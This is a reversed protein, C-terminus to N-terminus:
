VAGSHDGSLFCYPADGDGHNPDFAKITESMKQYAPALVSVADTGTKDSIVSDLARFNLLQGFRQTQYRIDWVGLAAGRKAAGLDSALAFTDLASTDLASPTMSQSPTPHNM